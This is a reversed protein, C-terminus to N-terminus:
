SARTASSAARSVNTTATTLLQIPSLSRDALSRLSTGELLAWIGARVRELPSRIPCVSEIDCSGDRLAAGLDNCGTVAPAGELATVVDGLTIDAAERALQYGGTAGRTSSVLGAHCLDKLSEALLRQPVHFHEGIERSPVVRGESDALHMLAILGYETRKTLKIM